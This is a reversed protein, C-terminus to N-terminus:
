PGFGRYDDVRESASGVANFPNGISGLGPVRIPNGRLTVTVTVVQGRQLGGPPSAAVSVGRLDGAALGHNTVVQHAASRAAAVGSGMDDALVVRRAAETAAAQAAHNTGVWGPLQALLAAAPILVFGVAFVLELSVSGRERRRSM